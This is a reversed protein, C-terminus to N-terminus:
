NVVYLLDNHLSDSVRLSNASSDRFDFSKGTLQAAHTAAALLYAFALVVGRARVPIQQALLSQVVVPLWASSGCIGNALIQAGAWLPRIRLWLINDDPCGLADPLQYIGNQWRGLVQGDPEQVAGAKVATMVLAIHGFAVLISGVYNPMNGVRFVWLFDWQHAHLNWASFVMIPLGIGYGVLMMKQDFADSREGSVIGMKMLAMGLLMLGGVRWIVFGFTGQTQMMMVM